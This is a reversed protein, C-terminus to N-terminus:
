KLEQGERDFCSEGDAMLYYRLCVSLSLRGLEAPVWSATRHSCLLKFLTHHPFFYKTSPRSSCGFCSLFRKCRCLLALSGVLFTGRENTSKSDGNVETEITLLPWGERTERPLVTFLV